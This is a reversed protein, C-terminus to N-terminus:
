RHQPRVSGHQRRQSHHRSPDQLGDLISGLQPRLHSFNIPARESIEVIETKLRSKASAIRLLIQM